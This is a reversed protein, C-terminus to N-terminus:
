SKIACCLKKNNEGPMEIAFLAKKHLAKDEKNTQHCKIISKHETFPLKHYYFINRFFKLKLQFSDTPVHALVQSHVIWPSM